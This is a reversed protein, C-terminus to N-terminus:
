TPFRPEHVEINSNEHKRCSMSHAKLQLGFSEHVWVHHHYCIQPNQNHRFTTAPLHSRRETCWMWWACSNKHCKRRHKCHWLFVAYNICNNFISLLFLHLFQTKSLFRGKSIGEAQRKLVKLMEGPNGALLLLLDSEWCLRQQTCKRCATVTVLLDQGHESCVGATRAQERFWSPM